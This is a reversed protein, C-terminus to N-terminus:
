PCFNNQSTILAVTASGNPMFSSGDVVSQFHLLSFSFHLFDLRVPRLAGPNSATEDFVSACRIVDLTFGRAAKRNDASRSFVKDLIFLFFQLFQSPSFLFEIGTFPSIRRSTPAFSELKKEGGAPAETL